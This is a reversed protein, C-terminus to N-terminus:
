FDWISFLLLLLLVDCQLHLDLFNWHAFAVDIAIFGNDCASSSCFGSASAAKMVLPLSVTLLWPVLSPVVASLVVSTASRTWTLTSYTSLDSDFGRCRLEVVTTMLLGVIAFIRATALGCMAAGLCYCAVSICLSPSACAERMPVHNARVRLRNGAISRNSSAPDMTYPPPSTSAYHHERM